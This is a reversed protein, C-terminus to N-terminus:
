EEDTLAGALESRTEEDLAAAVIGPKAAPHTASHVEKLKVISVHTYVQTSALQTHGLMQQIFRIDAGGELMLTAMSHRLLHASGTKGIAAQQVYQHVLRGISNPILRDGYEGIFMAPDDANETTLWRPRNDQVYKNVWELARPGIPIVRDKGGKGLHIAVVGRGHDVDHINLRCLEQRRMGTSYLVELIARDRVGHKTDLDVVAMVQEVELASLFVMPLRRPVKPLQLEAAPNLLLVGQRMLRGFLGRVMVLALHQSRASLPQGDKKRRHFLYSQYQELMPLTVDQPKHVSRESCWDSFTRLQYRATRLTSVSSGQVQLWHLFEQICAALPDAPPIDRPTRRGPRGGM